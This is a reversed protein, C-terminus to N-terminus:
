NKSAETLKNKLALWQSCDVVDYM